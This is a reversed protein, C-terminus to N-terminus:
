RYADNPTYKDGGFLHFQGKVVVGCMTEQKKTLAPSFELKTSRHLSSWKLLHQEIPGKHGLKDTTINIQFVSKGSRDGVAAPPGNYSGPTIVLM